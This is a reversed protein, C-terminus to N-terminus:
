CKEVEKEYPESINNKINLLRNLRRRYAHKYIQINLYVNYTVFLSMFICIVGYCVIFTFLALAMKNSTNQILCAGNNDIYISTNTPPKEYIYNSSNYILKPCYSVVDNEIYKYITEYQFCSNYQTSNPCCIDNCQLLCTECTTNTIDFSSLIGDVIKILGNYSGCVNLLYSSQCYILFYRIGLVLSLPSLILLTLILKFIM